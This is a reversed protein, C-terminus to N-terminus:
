PEKKEPKPINNLPGTKQPAPIPPEIIPVDHPTLTTATQLHAQARKNAPEAELTDTSLEGQNLALELLHRAAESSLTNPRIPLPPPLPPNM